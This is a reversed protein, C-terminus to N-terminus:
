IYYWLLTEKDWGMSGFATQEPTLPTAGIHRAITEGSPPADAHGRQLPIFPDAAPRYYRSGGAM